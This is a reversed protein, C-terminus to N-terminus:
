IFNYSITYKKTHFKSTFPMGDSAKYKDENPMPFRYRVGDWKKVCACIDMVNDAFVFSYPHM